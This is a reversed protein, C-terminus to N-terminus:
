LAYLSEEEYCKCVQSSQDTEQNRTVKVGLTSMNNLYIYTADRNSKQFATCLMSWINNNQNNNVADQTFVTNIFIYETLKNSSM